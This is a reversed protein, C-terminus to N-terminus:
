AAQERREIDHLRGAEIHETHDVDPRDGWVFFHNANFPSRMLTHLEIGHHRKWGEACEIVGQFTIVTAQANCGIPAVFDPDSYAM